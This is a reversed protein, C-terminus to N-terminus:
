LSSDNNRNPYSVQPKLEQSVQFKIHSIEESRLKGEAKAVYIKLDGSGEVTNTVALDFEIPTIIRFGTGSVGDRISSISSKIYDQLERSEINM